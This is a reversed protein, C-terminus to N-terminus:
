VHPTCLGVRHSQQPVTELLSRRMMHSRAISYLTPTVKGSTEEAYRKETIRPDKYLNRASACAFCLTKVRSIRTPQSTSRQRRSSLLRLEETHLFSKKHQKMDGITRFPAFLLLSSLGYLEKEEVTGISKSETRCGGDSSIQFLGSWERGFLTRTRLLIIKM